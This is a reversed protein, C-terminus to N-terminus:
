NKQNKSKKSKKSKNKDHTKKIHFYGWM